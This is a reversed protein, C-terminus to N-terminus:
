FPNSRTQREFPAIVEDSFKLGLVTQRVDTAEAGIGRSYTALQRLGDGTVPSTGYLAHYRAHQEQSERALAEIPTM